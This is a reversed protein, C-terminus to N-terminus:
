KVLLMTRTRVMGGASMRYVYVGSALGRAHFPITFTGPEKVENMLTAIERGLLDYVAVTILEKRAVTIRISTSPNFPNPYNQGLAWQMPRDETGPPASVVPTFGAGSLGGRIEASAMMRNWVSGTRYNEIMLAIPGQDIGIVDGDWWGAKLNFADAFGYPTWITARYQTYLNRLTPISIEPTFPM